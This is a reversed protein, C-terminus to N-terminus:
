DYHFSLFNRPYSESFHSCPYLLLSKLNLNVNTFKYKSSRLNLFIKWLVWWEKKSSRLLRVHGSIISESGVPLLFCSWIVLVLWLSAWFQSCSQFILSMFPKILRSISQRLCRNLFLCKKREVIKRRCIGFSGSSVVTFLKPSLSKWWLLLVWSDHVFSM